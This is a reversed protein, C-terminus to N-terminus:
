RLDKVFVPTHNIPMIDGDERYGRRCYFEGATDSTLIIKYVGQARFHDEAAKLLASGCGQRRDAPAVWFERIFGLKITFFWNELTMPTFQIFGRLTGDPAKLLLSANKGDNMERFLEDWNPAEEGLEEWYLKFAHMFAPDRHDCILKTTDNM